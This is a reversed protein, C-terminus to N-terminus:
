IVIPRVHGLQGVQIRPLKEHKSFSKSWNNFSQPNALNLNARRAFMVVKMTEEKTRFPQIIAAKEM